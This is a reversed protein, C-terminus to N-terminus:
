SRSVDCASTTFQPLSIFIGEWYSANTNISFEVKIELPVRLKNPMLTMRTNTFAKPHTANLHGPRYYGPMVFLHDPLALACVATIRSGRPSLMDMAQFFTSDIM